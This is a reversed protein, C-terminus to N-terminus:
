SACFVTLEESPYCEVRIEEGMWEFRITSAHLAQRDLLLRGQLAETWGGEIFDLYARKDGGYIKDGVIPFGAYELHVRIQHTRGTEPSCGIKAFRGEGNEIKERVVLNTTSEKGEENVAQRVWIDSAEFEGMRRLPAEVRLAAWEPWGRVIAEYGKAIEGRAMMKGLKRAAGSSKAVLVCGSTERDLRNVFYFREKPMAEKLLGLLTVEEAKGTPHMILPAPKGLVLWDGTEELIEFDERAPIRLSVRIYFGKEFSEELKFGRGHGV